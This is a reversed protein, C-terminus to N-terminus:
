RLAFRPKVVKNVTNLPNMSACRMTEYRVEGKVRNDMKSKVVSMRLFMLRNNLRIGM